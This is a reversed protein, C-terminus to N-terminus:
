SSEFQVCGWRADAERLTLKLSAAEAAAFVASSAAEEAYRYSNSNSLVFKPFWSIV